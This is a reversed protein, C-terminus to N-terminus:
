NLSIYKFYFINSHMKRCVRICISRLITFLKEM